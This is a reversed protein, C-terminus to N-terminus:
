DLFNSLEKALANLQVDHLVQILTAWSVPQLGAGNIWLQLIKLTVQETDQHHEHVIADVVHGTDDELLLIGLKWYKNGIRSAINICHPSSCEPPFKLLKPLTPKDLATLMLVCHIIYESLYSCMAPSYYSYYVVGIM